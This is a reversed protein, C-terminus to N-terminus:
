RQSRRGQPKGRRKVNPSPAQPLAIIPYLTPTAFIPPLIRIEFTLKPRTGGNAFVIRKGEIGQNITLYRRARKIRATMEGAAARRGAYVIIYAVADQEERLQAALNDLRQQEENFTLGSYQDFSRVDGTLLYETIPLSCSATLPCGKVGSVEVTATVAQGAVAFTDITISSTGQGSKIAGASVSWNYELTTGSAAGSVQAYVSVPEGLAWDGTPCSVTLIPCQKTAIAQARAAGGFGGHVLLLALAVTLAFVRIRRM